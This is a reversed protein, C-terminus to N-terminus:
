LQLSRASFKQIMLRSNQAKPRSCSTFSAALRHPARRAVYLNPPNPKIRSREHPILMKIAPAIAASVLQPPVVIKLGVGV